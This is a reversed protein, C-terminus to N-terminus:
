GNDLQRFQELLERQRRSLRTPTAITVRVLLDGHGRGHVNPVGKGRVRFVRGPQTGEPIKLEFDGDIASVKVTGGLAAVPFSIEAETILDDGERKFRKDPVVAVRVYLDGTSGGRGGAQGAVATAQGQGELRVAQGDDIGAPIKITLQERAMTAGNGRCSRCPKDVTQGTGGCDPCATSMGFGLGISRVVQGRGGCTRCRTQKSGPEAGSGRCHQCARTRELTVERTTGFVAERFPVAIEIQMDAEGSRVGASRAGFIDGLGGFIDGLNGFDFQVRNGSQGNRFAEAYDSFDRFNEFGSFGGQARAQEFAPGYQDYAKRKDPNSLVQYAANVAKFKEADGGAKDPHYQHALKRFAAKIEDPSASRAVGLIEYYDKAM